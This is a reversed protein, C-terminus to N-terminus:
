ADVNYDIQASARAFILFGRDGLQAHLVNGNRRMAWKWFILGEGLEKAYNSLTGSLFDEHM